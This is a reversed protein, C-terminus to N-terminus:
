RELRELLELAAASGIRAAFGLPGLPWNLGLRVATEMDALSAIRDEIAFATENAIQAFLRGLVEGADPDIRALEAPELTPAPIQPEPDRGREPDGRGGEGYPHYGHGSKRGLRGAAILREQVPSP